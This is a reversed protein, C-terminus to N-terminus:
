TRCSYPTVSFCATFACLATFASILFARAAPAIFGNAPFSHPDFQMRAQSFARRLEAPSLPIFDRRRKARKLITEPLRVAMGPQSDPPQPFAQELAAGSQLPADNEVRLFAHEARVVDHRVVFHLRPQTTKLLFAALLADLVM